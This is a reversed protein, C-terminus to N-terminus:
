LTTFCTEACTTTTREARWEEGNKTTNKYMKKKKKEFGGGVGAVLALALVRVLFLRFSVFFYLNINM